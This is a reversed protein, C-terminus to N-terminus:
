GFVPKHVGLQILKEYVCTEMPGGSEADMEFWGHTEACISMLTADM